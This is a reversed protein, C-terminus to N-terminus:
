VGFWKGWILFCIHIDLKLIHEVRDFFPVFQLNLYLARPERKDIQVRLGIHVINKLCVFGIKFRLGMSYKGVGIDLKRYQLLIVQLKPCCM